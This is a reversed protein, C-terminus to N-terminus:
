RPPTVVTYTVQSGAYAPRYWTGGCQEYTVNGVV